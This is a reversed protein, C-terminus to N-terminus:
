IDFVIFVFDNDCCNGESKESNAVDLRLMFRVMRAEVM